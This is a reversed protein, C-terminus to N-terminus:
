KETWLHWWADLGTTILQYTEEFDNTYYPDPVHQQEMGPIVSLFLHIKKQTSAPARRQLEEVNAQDMGIIWDFEQFDKPTIQRAIMGSTDIQERDLIRQTGPHPASGVEYSSTAASDVFFREELGEDAIRKKLLGEAMPSRCINGLCVFLIKTM